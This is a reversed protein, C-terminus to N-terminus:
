PDSEEGPPRAGTERHFIMRKLKAEDPTMELREIARGASVERHIEEILPVCWGCGGGASCFNSIQSARPPREVKFYSVVKRLPVHFCYCLTDDMEM